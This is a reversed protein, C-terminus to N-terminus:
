LVTSKSFDTLEKGYAIAEKIARVRVVTDMEPIDAITHILLIAARLMAERRKEFKPFSKLIKRVTELAGVTDGYIAQVLAFEYVPTPKM